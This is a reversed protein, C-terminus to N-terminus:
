AVHTDTDEDFPDIPKHHGTEHRHSLLSVPAVPAGHMPPTNAQLQAFAADLIRLPIDIHPLDLRPAIRIGGRGGSPAPNIMTINADGTAGARAALVHTDAASLASEMDDMLTHLTTQLADWATIWNTLAKTQADVLRAHQRRDSRIRRALAADSPAAFPAAFARLGADLLLATVFVTAMVQAPPHAVVLGPIQGQGDYRWVVLKFTAVGVVALLATACLLAVYALAGRGGIAGSHVGRVTCVSAAFWRAAAIGAIPVLMSLVVVMTRELLSADAQLDASFMYYYFALEAVLVISELLILFPGSILPIASNVRHALDATRHEHHTRERLDREAAQANATFREHAAARRHYAGVARTLRNRRRQVKRHASREIGVGTTRALVDAIWEAPSRTDTTGPTHAKLTSSLAASVRGGGAISSARRRGFVPFM